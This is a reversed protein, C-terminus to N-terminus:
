MDQSVIRIKKGNPKEINNGDKGIFLYTKNEQLKPFPCHAKWVFIIKDDIELKQIGLYLFV